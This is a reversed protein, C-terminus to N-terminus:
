FSVPIEGQKMKVATENAQVKGLHHKMEMCPHNALIVMVSMQIRFVACDFVPRFGIFNQGV